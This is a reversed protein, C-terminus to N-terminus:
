KATKPKWARALRQAEAIQARTMKAATADRLKVTASRRDPDPEKSAALNLWMHAAVYDQLVGVGLDYMVGLFFQARTDGQEAGRLYWIAAQSYNQAVGDGNAYMLGLRFQARPDGQEALPRWLRLATAFDGRQSAALGDEFPEAMAPPASALAVVFMALALLKRLM